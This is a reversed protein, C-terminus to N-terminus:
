ASVKPVAKDTEKDDPERDMWEKVVHAPFALWDGHLKAHGDEDTFSLALAPTKGKGRAEKCIRVATEHKISLSAKQTSKAEILIPGLRIDGLSLPQNGSGAVQKGGLKKSLRTESARGASGIRGVDKKEGRSHFPSKM